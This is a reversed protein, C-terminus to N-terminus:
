HTIQVIDANKRRLVRVVAEDVTGVVLPFRARTPRNQGIRRIRRAAQANDRPSWSMEAFVIEAAATLTIGAGAALIQGLFVRTGPDTQFADIAAQREAPATAGDLRVAGFRALAHQLTDLVDTHWAMVVVKEDNEALENAMQEALIRAKVTGTLRRLRALQDGSIRDLVDAIFDVARKEDFNLLAAQMAGAAARMEPDSRLWALIEHLHDGPQLPWMEGRMPPLTPLVDDLKRRLMHPAVRARLEEPNRVGVIKSANPRGPVPIEVCYRRRFTWYALPPDGLAAPAFARLLAWLEDASNPMPTGTLGWARAAAGVLGNLEDCRPGLVARTRAAGPNKLLDAEDCILVDWRKALMAGLVAPQRARDYSAVRLGPGDMDRPATVIRGPLASPSWRAWERVWGATVAAPALVLVDRAGVREAALIAQGTKGLGMEDALLGRERAALWAAGETQFPEPRIASQM